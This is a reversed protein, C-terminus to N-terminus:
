KKKKRLEQLEAVTVEFKLYEGKIAPHEVELAVVPVGDQNTELGVKRPMVTSEGLVSTVKVTLGKMNSLRTGNADASMSASLDKALDISNVVVGKGEITHNLPIHKSELGKSALDFAKTGTKKLTVSQIDDTSQFMRLAGSMNKMTQPNEVLDRMPTGKTFNPATFTNASDHLGGFPGQATSSVDVM